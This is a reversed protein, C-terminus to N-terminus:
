FNITMGEQAITTHPFHNCVSIQLQDLTTDDQLPSHHLLVLQKVRAKKAVETGLIWPELTEDSDNCLYNLDSYTGDYILIDAQDVFKLLDLDVRETPTDTAYVLTRDQWTIRYGFAETIPNTKIVEVNIDEISFSTQETLTHFELNAQMNQLPMSFHPKLMQDTLCHKISAGNPATGGYISFHNGSTFAPQFFPFGQIRDWQTHTFFLHAQTHENSQSLLSQGLGVLGTGGDFILRQNGINVEVCVTNGGYRQTSPNPTPVSGRVGWFTVSLQKESHDATKTSHLTPSALNIM